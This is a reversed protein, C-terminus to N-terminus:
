ASIIHLQGNYHMPDSSIIGTFVLRGALAVKYVHQTVQRDQLTQYETVYSITCAATNPNQSILIQHRKM